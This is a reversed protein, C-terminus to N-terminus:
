MQVTRASLSYAPTDEGIKSSLEGEVLSRSSGCSLDSQPGSGAWGLFILFHQM